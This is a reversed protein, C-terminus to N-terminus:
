AGPNTHTHLKQVLGLRQKEISQNDVQPHITIESTVGSCGRKHSHIAIIRDTM